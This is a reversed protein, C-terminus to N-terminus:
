PTMLWASLSYDVKAASESRVLSIIRLVRGDALELDTKTMIEQDFDAFPLVMDLTVTVGDTEDQWGNNERFFFRCYKAHSFGAVDLETSTSPGEAYTTGYYGSLAPDDFGFLAAATKNYSFYTGVDQGAAADLQTMLRATRSGEPADYGYLVLYQAASWIIKKETEPANENPVIQGDELMGSAELAKYLRNEQETRALSRASLPGASLMIVLVAAVLFLLRGPKKMFSAAVTILCILTFALSAVRAETLGYANVRIYVAVAQAAIVPLLPWAGFRKFLGSLRNEEGTLLLYLMAHTGLALLAYPNLRGVPMERSVLVSVIYVILVTLLLLYAPLVVYALIRGLVPKKADEAEGEPLHSFLLFPAALLAALSAATSQLKGSIRWDVEGFFLSTVAGILLFLILMVLVSVAGCAILCGLARSLQEAPRPCRAILACCLLAAGLSLGACCALDAKMGGLLCFLGAGAVASSIAIANRLQERHLSEALYTGTVSFCLGCLSAMFSIVLSDNTNGKEDAAWIFAVAAALTLVSLAMPVRFRRKVREAMKGISHVKTM